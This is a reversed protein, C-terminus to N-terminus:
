PPIRGIAKLHALMEQSNVGNGNVAVIGPEDLAAVIQSDNTLFIVGPTRRALESAAMIHWVDPGGLRSYKGLLREAEILFQPQETVPEVRRIFGMDFQVMARRCLHMYVAAEHKTTKRSLVKIFEAFCLWSSYLPVRSLGQLLTLLSDGELDSNVLLNADVYIAPAALLKACVSV